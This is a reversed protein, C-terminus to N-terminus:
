RHRSKESKTSSKRRHKKRKEKHKHKHTHAKGSPRVVLSSLKHSDKLLCVPDPEGLDADITGTVHLEIADDESPRRAVLDTDSGTGTTTHDGPQEVETAPSDGYPVLETMKTREEEKDTADVAEPQRGEQRSHHRHHHGGLHDSSSGLVASGAGNNGGDAAGSHGSRSSGGKRRNEKSVERRPETKDRSHNQEAHKHVETPHAGGKQVLVSRKKRTEPIDGGEAGKYAEAEHIKKSKKAETGVDKVTDVDVRPRKAEMAVKVQGVDGKSKTTEGIDAKSLPLVGMDRHGGKVKAGEDRVKTATTERAVATGDRDAKVRPRGDGKSRAHRDKDGLRSGEGALKNGVGELGNDKTHERARRTERETSENGGRSRKRTPEGRVDVGEKTRIADRDEGRVDVGEKTRIADRDQKPRGHGGNDEGLRSGEEHRKHRVSDSGGVCEQAKHGARDRKSTSPRVTCVLEETSKDGPGAADRPTSARDGTEGPPGSLTSSLDGSRSFETGREDGKVAVRKEAIIGEVNDESVPTSELSTSELPTAGQVEFTPVMTATTKVEEVCGDAPRPSAVNPSGAAPDPSLRMLSPSAANVKPM